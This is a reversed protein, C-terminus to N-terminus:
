WCFFDASSNSSLLLAIASVSFDVLCILSPRGYRIHVTENQSTETESLNQLEPLNEKCQLRM